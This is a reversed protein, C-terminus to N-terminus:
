VVEWDNVNLGLVNTVLILNCGWQNILQNASLNVDSQEIKSADCIAWMDTITVVFSSELKDGNLVFQKDPFVQQLELSDSINAYIMGRIDNNITSIANPEISISTQKYQLKKM